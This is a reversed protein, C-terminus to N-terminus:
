RDQAWAGSLIFLLDGLITALRKYQPYWNNFIDSRFPSGDLLGSPYTDVLDTMQQTTVNGAQLLNEPSETLLTGVPRPLYSMAPSSTSFIGPVSNVVHLYEQFPLARLCELTTLSSQCDGARVVADYFRQGRPSDAPAAPIVSSSNMIGARFLPKGKYTHDGDKLVMHDFVSIAVASEGWITWQMGLRQDLLGLNASGDKLIEAGSLFGFGGVRYNFGLEFGGDFIWFLVPLKTDAAVGTPRQVNLYLCDESQKLIKQILPSHLFEAIVAAAPNDSMADSLFFQPCANGNKTAKITGM